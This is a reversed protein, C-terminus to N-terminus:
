GDICAQVYDRIDGFVASNGDKSSHINYVSINEVTPKDKPSIVNVIPKRISIINSSVIDINTFEESSPVYRFSM